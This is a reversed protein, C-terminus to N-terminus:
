SANLGLHSDRKTSFGAALTDEQTAIQADITPVRVLRRAASNSVRHSHIDTTTDRPLACALADAVEAAARRTSPWHLEMEQMQETYAIQQSGAVHIETISSATAASLRARMEQLEESHKEAREANIAAAHARAPTAVGDSHMLRVALAMDAVATKVQKDSRVAVVMMDYHEMQSMTSDAQQLLRNAKQRDGQKAASVAERMLVSAEQELTARTTDLRTLLTTTEEMSPRKTGSVNRLRALTNLCAGMDAATTTARDFM